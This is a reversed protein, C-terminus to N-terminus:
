KEDSVGGEAGEAPRDARGDPLPCQLVKAEECRM